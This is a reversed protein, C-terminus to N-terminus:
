ILSFTVVFRVSKNSDVIVHYNSSTHVRVAVTCCRFCETQLWSYFASCFSTIIAIFFHFDVFLFSMCRTSIHRYIFFFQFRLSFSSSLQSLYLGPVIFLSAFVFYQRLFRWAITLHARLSWFCHNLFVVKWGCSENASRARTHTINLLFFFACFGVSSVSIVSRWIWKRRTDTYATNKPRHWSINFDVKKWLTCCCCRKEGTRKNSIKIETEERKRSKWIEFLQFVSRQAAASKRNWWKPLEISQIFLNIIVVFCMIIHQTNTHMWSQASDSQYASIPLAGSHLQLSCVASWM